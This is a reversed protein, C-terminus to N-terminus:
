VTVLLFPVAFIAISFFLSADGREKRGEAEIQVKKVEREVISWGFHGALVRFFSLL